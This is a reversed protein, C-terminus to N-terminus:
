WALRIGLGAVTADFDGSVVTSDRREHRLLLELTLPPRPRWAVTLRASRFRESRPLAAGLVIAADGLYDRDAQQLALAVDLKGRPKWTATLALGEVRVLGVNVQETASVEKAVAAELLLKDAPMWEYGLRWTWDDFDRQALERFERSLVGARATLRSRGGTAWEVFAEAGQQRYDNDVLLGAVPQPSPLRGDLRQLELGIRNGARTVYVPGIRLSDITADSPRYEDASNEHRQRHAGAELRWRPALALGAELLWQRTELFNPASSQLGGQVNALSALALTEGYGIRGAAHDGAQWHWAFQGHRGDLDLVDFRDFRQRDFRLEAAIRQRGLPWDLKLGAATVRYSDARSPSGLEAGPDAGRALRFVNDDHVFGQYVHLELREDLLARAPAVPAVLAAVAIAAGAALRHAPEPASSRRM